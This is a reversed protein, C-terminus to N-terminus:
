GLKKNIERLFTPSEEHYGVYRRLLTLMDFVLVYSTNRFLLHLDSESSVGM